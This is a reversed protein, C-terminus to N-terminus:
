TLGELLRGGCVSAEADVMTALVSEGNFCGNSVVFPLFDTSEVGDTDNEAVLGALLPASVWDPPTVM